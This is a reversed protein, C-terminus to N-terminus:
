NSSWPMTADFELNHVQAVASNTVSGNFINVGLALPPDNRLASLVGENALKKVYFITANSLAVSSTKPYAGPM